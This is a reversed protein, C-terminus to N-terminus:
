GRPYCVQRSDLNEVSAVKNRTKLKGVIQSVLGVPLRHNDNDTEAKIYQASAREINFSYKAEPTARFDDQTDSSRGNGDSSM